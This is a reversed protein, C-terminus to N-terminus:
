CEYSFQIIRTIISEMSPSFSTLVLSLNCHISNVFFFIPLPVFSFCIIGCNPWFTWCYFCCFSLFTDMKIFFKGEVNCLYGGLLSELIGSKEMCAQTSHSRTSRSHDCNISPAPTQIWPILTSCIPILNTDIKEEKEFLGLRDLLMQYCTRVM